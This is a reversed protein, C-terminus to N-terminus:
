QLYAKLDPFLLRNVAPRELDSRQILVAPLDLRRVPSGGRLKVAIARTSEYGMKFPDQVILSDIWGDRFDNILQDSADFAVIRVARNGRAKVAQVAGVSSSENDAFIGALDPHATLVNETVSMAKARNAMGFQVGLLQVNPYKSRMEEM